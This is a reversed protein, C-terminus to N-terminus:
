EVLNLDPPRSCVVQGRRRGRPASADNIQPVSVDEAKVVNGSSISRKLQARGASNRNPSAPPREAPEISLKSKIIMSQSPHPLPASASLDDLSHSPSIISDNESSGSWTASLTTPVSTSASLAPATFIQTLSELGVLVSKFSPRESPSAKTCMQCLCVLEIPARRDRKKEFLKEDFKKTRYPFGLM